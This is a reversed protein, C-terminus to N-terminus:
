FPLRGLIYFVGVSVGFHRNSLNTPDVTYTPGAGIAWNSTKPEVKVSKVGITTSKPNLDTVQVEAIYPKFINKRKYGVVIDLKTKNRIDRSISDKTAVINGSSWEEDWKTSYVPSHPIQPLSPSIKATDYSVLTPTTGKDSIYGDIVTVSEVKGGTKEYAKIRDVLRIIDVDKTALNKLQKTNTVKLIKNEAVAQGLINRYTKTSDFAAKLNDNQQDITNGQFLVKIVLALVCLGLLYYGNKFVFDRLKKM